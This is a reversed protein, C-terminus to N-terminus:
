DTTGNITITLTAAGTGGHGDSVAYAFTDTLLQGDDLADVAPDADDLTYTWSGDPQIELAGHDLARLGGNTVSLTDGDPDTDNVLLNGSTPGPGADETVTGADGVAAPARNTALVDLSVTAVGALGDGDVARYVFSDAGAYGPEPRYAFSGDANLTLTGHRAGEVLVATLRGGDPDRDNGLVGPAGASMSGGRVLTFSEGVAVPAVRPRAEVRFYTATALRRTKGRAAVRLVATVAAEPAVSTAYGVRVACKKRPAIRRLSCRDLLVQFAAGGPSTVLRARLVKTRTRGINTVVVTTASGHPVLVRPQGASSVISSSLVARDEAPLAPAPATAALVAAVAVGVVGVREFGM